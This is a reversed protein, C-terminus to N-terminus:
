YSLFNEAKMGLRFNPSKGGFFNFLYMVSAPVSVASRIKSLASFPSSNIIMESHFMPSARPTRSSFRLFPQSVLFSNSAVRFLKASSSTFSIRRFVRSTMGVRVGIRISM